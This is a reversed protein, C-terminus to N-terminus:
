LKQPVFVQGPIWWVADRFKLDEIVEPDPPEESYASQLLSLVEKSPPCFVFDADTVQM